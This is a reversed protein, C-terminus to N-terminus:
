ANPVRLVRMIVDRSFKAHLDPHEKKLDTTSFQSRKLTKFTVLPKGNANIVQRGGMFLRIEDNVTALQASINDHVAQLKRRKTLLKYLMHGDELTDADVPEDQVAMGILAKAKKAVDAAHEARILTEELNALTDGIIEDPVSFWEGRRMFGQEDLFSHAAKECASPTAHVVCFSAVEKLQLPNGTQLELLRASVDIRKTFGVKYWKGDGCDSIVYVVGIPAPGPAAVSATEPVPKDKLSYDEVCVRKAPPGESDAAHSIDM